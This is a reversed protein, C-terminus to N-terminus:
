YYVDFSNHRSDVKSYSLCFSGNLCLVSELPSLETWIKHFKGDKSSGVRTKRALYEKETVESVIGEFFSM